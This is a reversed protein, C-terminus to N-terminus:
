ARSACGNWGKSAGRSPEWSRASRRTAATPGRRRTPPGGSATSSSSGTSTARDIVIGVEPPTVVEHHVLGEVDTWSWVGCRSRRDLEDHNSIRRQSAEYNRVHRELQAATMDMALGLLFEESEPTVVQCLARVKSFSLRGAGMAAHVLPADELRAAVSVHDRAARSSSGCPAMLWAACSAFGAKLWLERRDFEGFAELWMALYASQEATGRLLSAELEEDSLAALM